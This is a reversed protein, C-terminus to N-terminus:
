GRLLRVASRVCLCLPVSVVEDRHRQTETHAQLERGESSRASGPRPFHADYEDSRAGEGYLYHHLRESWDPPGDLNASELIHLWSYPDSDGAASAEAATSEEEITVRVRTDPDLPIPGEPRLVEGDFTAYLTTTM